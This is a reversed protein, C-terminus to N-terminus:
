ARTRAKELLRQHHEDTIQKLHYRDGDEHIRWGTLPLTDNIRLILWEFSAAHRPEKGDTNSIKRLAERTIPRPYYHTLLKVIPHGPHRSDCASIIERSLLRQPKIWVLPLDSTM